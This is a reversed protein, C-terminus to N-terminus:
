VSWGIGSTRSCPRRQRLSEIHTNDGKGGPFDQGDIQGTFDIRVRDGERATREVAHWTARQERM